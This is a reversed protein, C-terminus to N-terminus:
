RSGAGLVVVAAVGALAAEIAVVGWAPWGDLGANLMVGSSGGAGSSSWYFDAGLSALQHVRLRVGLTAVRSSNGGTEVGVRAGLRLTDAIASGLELEGGVGMSGLFPSVSESALYTTAGIRVDLSICDSLRVGLATRTLAGTHSGDLVLHASPEGYPHAVCPRLVAAPLERNCDPQLPERAKGAKASCGTRRELEPSATPPAGLAPEAASSAHRGVAVVAAVAM